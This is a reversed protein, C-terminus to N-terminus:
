TGWLPIMEYYRRVEVVKGLVTLQEPSLTLPQFDPNEACLMIKNGSYRLRKVTAEDDVLAVVIDGEQASKQHRAIVMDGPLIGAGNMSLGRVRLAFLEEGHRSREVELFGEPEEVALTLAGAQVAGLVPIRHSRSASWVDPPLAYSRSATGRKVLRGEIVLAELHSRATEVAKFGMAAQVERITPPDGARLRDAVYKYVKDRMVSM